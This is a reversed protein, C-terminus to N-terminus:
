QQLPALYVVQNTQHTPINSRELINPVMVAPLKRKFVVPRTFLPAGMGAVYKPICTLLALGLPM